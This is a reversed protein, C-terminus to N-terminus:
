KERDTHEKRNQAANLIDQTKLWDPSGEPLSRAAKGAHFEAEPMKGLLLAEEALALSSQTEQGTRGYAIALHRWTSPVLPEQQLAARLNGIAPEIMDDRGSEV